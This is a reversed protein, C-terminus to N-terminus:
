SSQANEIEKRVWALRAPNLHVAKEANAKNYIGTTALATQVDMAAPWEPFSHTELGM